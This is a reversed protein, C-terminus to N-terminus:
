GELGDAFRTPAVADAYPPREEDTLEAAIVRGAAPALQIGESNFGVVSFGEVATPGVIPNGDPTLSRIGVWEEVIDADLLSPLLEEITEIMGSRVAEPISGSVSEPDYETGAEAYSGPSHGVLVADDRWGLFYYGTDLHKINPLPHPLPTTPQLKAIPALTHKLPLDLGVLRGVELNWPGAAAVVQTTPIRDTETRVAVVAEGDTEIDTIETNNRFEAGNARAREAFEHALEVPRFVGANPNYLAGEIAESDLEPVLVTEDIRDGRLYTGTELDTEALEATREEDTTVELRGLPAFEPNAEPAALFENYLKLGYRKMPELVPDGMMRFVATSRATTESGVTSREFVTVPADTRASLHYAVSAGAIGGGIVAISDDM